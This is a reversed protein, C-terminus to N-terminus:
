WVADEIVLDPDMVDEGQDQLHQIQQPSLPPAFVPVTGEQPQITDDPNLHPMMGAFGFWNYGDQSYELVGDHVRLYPVGYEGAPTRVKNLSDSKSIIELDLISQPSFRAREARFDDSGDVIIYWGKPDTGNTSISAVSGVIRKRLGNANWTVDILDGIAILRNKVAGDDFKLQVAVSSIASCRIDMLM